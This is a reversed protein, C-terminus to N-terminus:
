LYYQLSNTFMHIIQELQVELHQLQVPPSAVHPSLLLVHLVDKSSVKKFTVICMSQCATMNQLAVLVTYDHETVM